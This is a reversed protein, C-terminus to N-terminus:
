ALKVVMKVYAIVFATVSLALTVANGYVSVVRVLLFVQTSHCIITRVAHEM